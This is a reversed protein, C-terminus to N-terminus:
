CKRGAHALCTKHGNRASRACMVRKGVSPRRVAWCQWSNGPDFTEGASEPVVVDRGRAQGAFVGGALRVEKTAAPASDHQCGFDACIHERPRIRFLKKAPETAGCYKCSIM